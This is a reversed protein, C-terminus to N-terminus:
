SGGQVVGSPPAVGRSHPTSGGEDHGGGGGGGAGDEEAQGKRSEGQDGEGVETQGDSRVAPGPAHLSERRHTAVNGGLDLRKMESGATNTKTRSETSGCISHGDALTGGTAEGAMAEMGGPIAADGGPTCGALLWPGHLPGHQAPPGPCRCEPVSTYKIYIIIM